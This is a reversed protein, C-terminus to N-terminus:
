SLMWAALHMLALSLLLSAFVLRGTARASPFRSGAELGRAYGSRNSGATIRNM